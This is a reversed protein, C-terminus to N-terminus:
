RGWPGPRRKQRESEWKAHLKDFKERQGPTLIASIRTRSSERVADFRPKMEQRLADIQGRTDQLIASVQAQQSADLNLKNTFEKMMHKQFNEPGGFRHRLREFRCLVSGTLLVGVLFALSIQKWELKM